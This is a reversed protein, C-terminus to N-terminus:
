TPWKTQSRLDSHGLIMLKSLKNPSVKFHYASNVKFTKATSLIILSLLAKSMLILTHIVSLLLYSTKLILSNRDWQVHSAPKEWEGEPRHWSNGFGCERGESPWRPCLLGTPSGGNTQGPTVARLGGEFISAEWLIQLTTFQQQWTGQSFILATMTLDGACFDRRGWSRRIQFYSFLSIFVDKEWFVAVHIFLSRLGCGGGGVESLRM